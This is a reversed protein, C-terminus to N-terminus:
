HSPSAVEQSCNLARHGSALKRLLAGLGKQSPPPHGDKQSRGPLGKKTEWGRRGGEGGQAAIRGRIRLLDGCPQNERDYGRSLAAGRFTWELPALHQQHATDNVGPNCVVRGGRADGRGEPEM